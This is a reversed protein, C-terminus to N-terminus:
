FAVFDSPAYPGDYNKNELRLVSFKTRGPRLRQVDIIEFNEYESDVLLVSLQNAFLECYMIDCSLEYFMVIYKCRYRYLLASLSKLYKRTNVVTSYSIVFDGIPIVDDGSAEPDLTEGKITNRCVYGIHYFSLNHSDQEGLSIWDSVLGCDGTMPPGIFVFFENHRAATSNM